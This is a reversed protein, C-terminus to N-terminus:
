VDAVGLRKIDGRVHPSDNWCQDNILDSAPSDWSDQPCCGGKAAFEVLFGLFFHGNRVVTSIKAFCAIRM